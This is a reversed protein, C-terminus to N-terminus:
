VLGRARYWRATSTIGAHMTIQPTWIEAPPLAEGAVAWDKHTIERAKGRTLMMVRGTLRGWTESVAGAVHIMTSPIQIYFPDSGLAAAAIKLLDAFEYGSPEADALYWHGALRTRSIAAVARAADEAHILALRSGQPQGLPAIRGSALKFLVLTEKDGPGYIAPPRLIGIRDEPLIARIMEEGALKSEAYHSLEPSRAALSSILLFHANPILRSVTQALRGAGDRNVAMFDERSRAKILGAGHIVAQAGLCLRDLAQQDELRGPVVELDVGAWRADQPDQRMLIRVRYGAEHLAPVLYRGLFGSAGTLAVVPKEGDITVSRTM